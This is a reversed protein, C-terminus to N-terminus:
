PHHPGDTTERRVLADLDDQTLKTASLILERGRNPQRILWDRAEEGIEDDRKADYCAQLLIAQALRHHDFM